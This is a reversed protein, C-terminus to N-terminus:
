KAVAPIAITKTVEADVVTVTENVTSYGDKKVTITYSGKRVYFEVIGSSNTRKRSEGNIIVTAKEVAKAEEGTGNKVTLTVKQTIAPTVPELYAFPCSERNEDLRTAPNPLAWGLRFTVRLAIMDQQALNYVIEKSVPDQIVSETLIKTQIDQRISYVAKSWDGALMQAQSKDFAGNEPFYMPTGDLAYNTAGQMDNKFIPQKNSDRLGRLKAKMSLDAVTGNVGYGMEEIKAFVGDEGLIVDYYDQGSEVKVNNGAIRARDIISMGWSKPMNNGFIAASDVRIGISELVRPTVEGLIDIDSDALIAEPIPVIVALEEAYMFVNDWAQRSTQKYGTDGDVWYSMPLLDLVRMKTQRSTMNPLKKALQMFISSKPVDQLIAKQIQPEILAQAQQLKIADVAM